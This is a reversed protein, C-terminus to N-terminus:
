LDRKCFLGIFSVINQLLGIIKLLRSITAVGYTCICIYGHISTDLYTHIHFVCTYTHTYIYIYTYIYIGRFQLASPDWIRMYIQPHTTMYIIYVHSRLQPESQIYIYMFIQICIYVYVYVNIFLIYTEVNICMYVYTCMCMNVCM